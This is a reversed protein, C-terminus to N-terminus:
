RVNRRRIGGKWNMILDLDTATNWYLHLERATEDKLCRSVDAETM